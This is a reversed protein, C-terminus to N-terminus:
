SRSQVSGNAALLYQPASYTTNTTEIRVGPVLVTRDNFYIEDMAYVGAVREKARYSGMDGTPSVVTILSGSRSLALMKDADPYASGFEQYKGGLYNDAPSYTTNINDLLRYTNGAAPTQTITDVDRTRNEDRVKVGFKFLGGTKAG